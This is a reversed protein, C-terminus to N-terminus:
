VNVYFYKEIFNLCSRLAKQFDKESFPEQQPDKKKSSAYTGNRISRAKKAKEEMVPTYDDTSFGRLYLAYEKHHKKFKSITIGSIPLTMTSYVFMGLIVVGMLNRFALYANDFNQFWVEALYTIEFLMIIVFLVKVIIRYIRFYKRIRVASEADTAKSIRIKFRKSLLYIILGFIACVLIVELM